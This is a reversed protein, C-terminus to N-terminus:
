RSKSVSSPYWEKVADHLNIQSSTENWRKFLVKAMHSFLLALLSQASETCTCDPKMCNWHWAGFICPTAVSVKVLARQERRPVVIEACVSIAECGSAGDEVTTCESSIALDDAYLGGFGLDSVSTSSANMRLAVTERPLSITYYNDVHKTTTQEVTQACVLM